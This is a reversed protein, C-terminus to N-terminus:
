VVREWVVVVSWWLSTNGSSSRDDRDALANGETGHGFRRSRWSDGGITACLSRACTVHGGLLAGPPTMYHLLHMSKVGNRLDLFSRIPLSHPQTSSRATRARPQQSRRPNSNPLLLSINALPPTQRQRHSCPVECCCVLPLHPTQHPPPDHLLAARPPRSRPASPGSLFAPNPLAHAIRTAIIDCNSPTPATTNVCSEETQFGPFTLTAPLSVPLKAAPRQKSGLIEALRCPSQYAPNWCIKSQSGLACPKKRSSSSEKDESECTAAHTSPLLSATLPHLLVSVERPLVAGLPHFPRKDSFGASSQEGVVTAPSCYLIHQM